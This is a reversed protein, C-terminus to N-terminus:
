TALLESILAQLRDRDAAEAGENDRIRTITRSLNRRVEFSLNETIRRDAGAELILAERRAHNREAIVRHHLLARGLVVWPFNPDKVPGVVLERGGLPLGLVAVKALQNTGFFGAAGGLLAGIGAGLLLSTGGLIADVGSGAIAGSIAGASALQAASLGFVQWSEESFLDANLPNDVGERKVDAHRYVAQVQDRAREERERIQALLRATAQERAGDSAQDPPLRKSVRSTIVDILLDAIEAACQRRRHARENQLAEAARALPEAWAENLEGFARLLNIRKEFDARTADFVRVIAFFQDLARHWDDVYNDEGILNILAMRPRGTWQLVQMEAEYEPGYPKSGDVVYLLGAADLLPSLLECEDHFRPDERHAELFAAVTQPREHASPHHEELWALTERARQFGPTDILEYLIQGDIAFPYRRAKTTTGPIPSILVEDNEALTAVISSKGKNPHGVIVFRPIM